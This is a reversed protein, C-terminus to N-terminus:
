RLRFDVEIEVKTKVPKGNIIGPVWKQTIHSKILRYAEEDYGMGIGRWVGIEILNGNEDVEGVLISRYDNGLKKPDELKRNNKYIWKIYEQFGGMPEPEKELRQGGKRLFEEIATQEEQKQTDLLHRFIPNDETAQGQLIEEIYIIDIMGILIVARKYIDKKLEQESLLTKLADMIITISLDYESMVEAMAAIEKLKSEPYNVLDPNSLYFCDLFPFGITKSGDIIKLDLLKKKLATRDQLLPSKKPPYESRHEIFKLYANEINSSKGYGGDILYSEFYDTLYTWEALSIKSNLCKEVLLEGQLIQDQGNVIFVNLLIALSLSIKKM